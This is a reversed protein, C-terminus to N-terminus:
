NIFKKISRYASDLKKKLHDFRSDMEDSRITLEDVKEKMELILLEIYRQVDELAKEIRM